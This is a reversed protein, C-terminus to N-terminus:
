LATILFELKDIIALTVSDESPEYDDLKEVNFEPTAERDEPEIYTLVDEGEFGEGEFIKVIRADSEKSENHAIKLVLENEYEEIIAVTDYDDSFLTGRRTALIDSQIGFIEDEDDRLEIWTWFTEEDKKKKARQKSKFLAAGTPNLGTTTHGIGIYRGGKLNDFEGSILHDGGDEFSFVVGTNLAYEGEKELSNVIHFSNNVKLINFKKNDIFM